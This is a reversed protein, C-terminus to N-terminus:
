RNEQERTINALKHLAEFFQRRTKAEERFLLTEISDPTNKLYGRDVLYVQLEAPLKNKDLLTPLLQQIYVQEKPSWGNESGPTKIGRQFLDEALQIDSNINLTVGLEKAAAELVPYNPKEYVKYLQASPTTM